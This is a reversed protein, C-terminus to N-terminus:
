YRIFPVGIRSANSMFINFDHVTVNGDLTCDSRVYQNVGGSQTTFVNFDAVTMVGNANFDGGPLAYTGNSLLKLQGVGGMVQAPVTFNISSSSPITVPTATMVDIHNRHRLVFYYSQGAELNYFKMRPLSNGWIINAPYFGNITGNAALMGARTELVIDPNAASRAEVLVYDVSNDPIEATNRYAEAGEYQWPATNYPQNIPLLNNTKLTTRMFGTNPDFAGELYAQMQVPIFMGASTTVTAIVMDCSGPVGEVCVYYIFVDTGSFGPNPDYNFEGTLPDFVVTGNAPQLTINITYIPLPTACIIPQPNVVVINFASIVLTPDTPNDPGIIIKPVFVKRCVTFECLLTGDPAYRRVTMCICYTGYSPFTYVAPNNGQTVAFITSSIGNTASWTVEDCNPDLSGYPTFVGNYGTLSYFFGLNAQAYFDEDCECCPPINISMCKEYMGCINGNADYQTALMCIQHIGSSSFTHTIIDNGNGYYFYTTFNDQIIWQISDCVGLSNAVFAYTKCTDIPIVTFGNNVNAIFTTMDCVCGGCDPLVICITDTSCCAIENGDADIEHLNLQFCITDGPMAGPGGITTTLNPSTGQDPLSVSFVNPTAFVGGNGSTSINYMSILNVSNGTNNFVQFNYLYYGPNTPDCDISDHTVSACPNCPILTLNLPNSMATCGYSNTLIVQYSGSQTAIYNNSTGLPPAIPIGNLLWQYGAYINPVCITDPGCRKYCGSPVVCIDPIPNVYIVNSKRECGTISDIAIAFYPGEEVTVTINNVGLQGTSWAYLIGSQVPATFTVVDGACHPGVPSATITFPAPLPHVVITHSAVSSCNTINDTVTVNYTYTGPPTQCPFWPPNVYIDCSTSGNSWLYSYNTYNCPLTKLQAVSCECVETPGKIEITPNPNFSVTKAPPIYQCGNIDTLTVTFTGNASVTIVQTTAGTSWLYTAAGLPATLTVPTGACQTTLPSAVILGSLTNPYITINQSASGTCGYTDTVTLTVTYVGPTFYTHAPNQSTSTNAPGSPPDGFNWNWNTIINTSSGGFTVGDGQCAPANSSISPVPPNLVTINNTVTSTCGTSSLVTLTITYSGPSTFVHSPNQLTSTNNVGSSPDGFNWSWGALSTTPVYTSADSFFIPNCGTSYTFNAVMPVLITQISVVTCTPPPPSLNPVTASLIVQYYGPLSYSNSTTVGSGFNGDGFSWSYASANVSSSADFSFFDCTAGSTYIFAASGNPNCNGPPCPPQGSCGCPAGAVIANSQATCGCSNTVVVSYSGFGSISYNFLTAGGIPTAGNYWQYTYGVANNLAYLTGFAATCNVSIGSTTIAASPLPCGTVNISGVGSCGTICNTVTVFYSGGQTITATPGTSITGGSANQWTYPACYSGGLTLLANSGTCVVPPGLVTVPFTPTVNVILNATFGCVSVSVVAGGALNWQINISNSGSGSVISGANAPVITWTYNEGAIFPVSYPATQNVCPTINGTITPSTLATVILTYPLSQCYPSNIMTQTVSISYPGSAAWQVNVSNGTTASVTGNVATWTFTGAPPSAQATYTYTGNPCVFVPGVIGSPAPPAPLVDITFYATDNCFANPIISAAKVTYTGPGNSWIYTLTPSNIAVNPITVNAPTVIDWNCVGAPSGFPLGGATFTTATNECAEEPGKIALEPRILVTLNGSGGCDLYCNYYTVNITGVTPFMFWDDWEITIDDTGQGALITGGTVTWTYETGGCFAIPLSYTEIAGYCVLTPGLIPVTPSIIPVQVTTPIPCTACPTSLTVTGIPGNGWVVWISDPAFNGWNLQGTVSWNYTGCVHNTYYCATDMPCVTSVCEIEPSSGPTVVVQVSTTDTCYCSNRVILTATYTGPTTYTHTVIPNTSTLLPSADGFNWQAWNYGTSTNLFSVGQGQCITVTGAVTAPLTNFSAVPSPIVHICLKFSDVCGFQNVEVVKVYSNGVPGWLVDIQNGNPNVFTINDSGRGVSWTYTSGTTFPTYYSLTSNACADVCPDPPADNGAPDGSSSGGLNCNPIPPAIIIPTPKPNIILSQNATTSGIQSVSMSGTGPLGWCINVTTGTQNAPTGGTITWNYPNTNGGSVTYTYCNGTCVPATGSITLQAFAMQASSFLLLVLLGTFLLQIKM